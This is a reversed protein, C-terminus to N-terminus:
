TQDAQAHKFRTLLDSPLQRTVGDRTMAILKTVATALLQKPGPEERYIEYAFTLARSQVRELRCEVSILDDYRASSIYRVQAEAVALLFGEREMQAYTVGFRRIFDTRAVECWVLYHPHYVIGMQDSESYRVRFSSTTHASTM